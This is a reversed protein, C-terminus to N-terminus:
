RRIILAGVFGVLLAVLLWWWPVGGRGERVREVTVPRVVTVTDVREVVKDRVREVTRVRYRDVYVTDAQRWRDCFVSDRVILTDTRLETESVVVPVEIPMYQPGRCGVALVVVLLALLWRM